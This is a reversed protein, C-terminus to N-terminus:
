LTEPPRWPTPTLATLASEALNVDKLMGDAIEVRTTGSLTSRLLDSSANRGRLEIDTDLKGELSDGSRPFLSSALQQPMRVFVTM